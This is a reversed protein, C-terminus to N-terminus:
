CSELLILSHHNGRYRNYLLIRKVDTHHADKAFVIAPVKGEKLIRAAVWLAFANATQYEGCLHKFVGVSTSPFIQEAFVDYAGDNGYDGNKGVLLMQVDSPQLKNRKLFSITDRAINDTKYFTAVDRISAYTSGNKQPSLLFYAAGEGQICGKTRDRFLELNSSGSNKYLDFRNLIEFSLNTVEDVGGALVTQQKEEILMLADELANEFSFARHSYTQNYGYCQLLLAVQSGITNHTSQIFPTPNLAEEKHDIIKHLFIGTDELCGFATGTIIADPKELGAEKLALGAAAVGMRIIRSMRRMARADIWGTYDPELCAVRNGDYKKPEALFPVAGFSQQPSITGIGNIFAGM